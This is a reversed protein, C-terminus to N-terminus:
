RSNSASPASGRLATAGDTRRQWTRRSTGAASHPRSSTTSRPETRTRGRSMAVSWSRASTAAGATASSSRLTPTSPRPSSAASAPSSSVGTAVLAADRAGARGRTEPPSCPEAGMVLSPASANSRAKAPASGLATRPSSVGRTTATPATAGSRCSSPAATRAADLSQNPNTLPLLRRRSRANNARQKCKTTCFRQVGAKPVPVFESGCGACKRPPHTVYVIRARSGDLNAAAACQKSCYTRQGRWRPLFSEGCRACGVVSPPRRNLRCDTSCYTQPRGGRRPTFTNECGERACKQGEM